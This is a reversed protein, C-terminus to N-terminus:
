MERNYRFINKLFLAPVKLLGAFGWAQTALFYFILGLSLYRSGWQTFIAALFIIFPVYLTMQVMWAGVFMSVLFSLFTLIQCLPGTLRQKPWPNVSKQIENDSEPKRM